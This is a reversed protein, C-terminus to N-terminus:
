IFKKLYFIKISSFLIPIIDVIFINSLNRNKLQNSYSFLNFKFKLFITGTLNLFFSKNLILQYRM